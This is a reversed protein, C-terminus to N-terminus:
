MKCTLSTKGLEVDKSNKIPYPGETGPAANNFVDATNMKSSGFFDDDSSWEIIITEHKLGFGNKNVDVEFERQQDRTSAESKYIEKGSEFFSIRFSLDPFKQSSGSTWSWTREKAVDSHSIECKAKNKISQFETM